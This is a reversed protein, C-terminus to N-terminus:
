YSYMRGTNEDSKRKRMYDMQKQKQHRMHDEKSKQQLLRGVTEKSKRVKDELKTFDNVIGDIEKSYGDQGTLKSNCLDEFSMKVQQIKRVIDDITSLEGNNTRMLSVKKEQKQPQEEGEEKLIKKVLNEIDNESIKIVKKM